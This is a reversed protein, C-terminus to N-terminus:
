CGAAQDALQQDLAALQEQTGINHWCGPFHQGSVRGEAAHHQYLPLLKFCGEPQDAIFARRYMGISSFTLMPRRGPWRIWGQDLQFDGGPHWPPNDVMVLHALAEDPMSLGAYDLDSWIDAAIALFPEDGLWPLANRMGGGTELAQPGEHLYRIRLGWRRGDGLTPEFQEALHSTNIMVEEVGAAALKELHWAILPKGGAHLLPKPTTLTLPRLRQGQGAAFLLAQKM